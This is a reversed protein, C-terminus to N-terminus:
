EDRSDVVRLAELLNGQSGGAAGFMEEQIAIVIPFAVRLAEVGAATIEVQRTRTDETSRPREVLGKADLAKLMLSIQMPHIDAERALEAQTAAKDSRCMWGVMALTTFQLHTLGHPKLAREVARQYRHMVRWLVFGVADDPSGLSTTAYLDRLAELDMTM